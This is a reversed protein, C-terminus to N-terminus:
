NIVDFTESDFTYRPVQTWVGDEQVPVKHIKVDKVELKGSTQDVWTNAFWGYGEMGRVIKVKEYVLSLDANIKPDRFVFLGDKSRDDVVMKVAANVSDETFDRETTAAAAPPVFLRWPAAQAAAPEATAAGCCLAVAVVTAQVISGWSQGLRASIM